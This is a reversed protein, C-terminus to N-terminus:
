TSGAASSVRQLSWAAIEELGKWAKDDVLDEKQQVKESYVLFM